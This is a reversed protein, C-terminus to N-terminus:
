QEVEDSDDSVPESASKAPKQSARKNQKPAPEDQADDSLPEVERVRSESESDNQINEFDFDSSDDDDDDLWSEDDDSNDYLNDNQNGGKLSEIKSNVLRNILDEMTEPKQFGLPAVRPRLDLKEGPSNGRSPRGKCSNKLLEALTFDLSEFLDQISDLRTQFYKFQEQTM